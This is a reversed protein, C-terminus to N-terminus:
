VQNLQKKKKFGALAALGTGLLILSAPEPTSPPPPGGGISCDAGCSLRGVVDAFDLFLTGNNTDPSASDGRSGGTAIITVAKTVPDLLDVEGNNNNVIIDGNLNNTSSIVGTGDPSPFHAPAPTFVLTGTAIDYGNINTQESYVTKGDPSVSVGDGDGGANIVRFSGAGGNALPNIDILGAGSSAEIHGTVPNGWMGLDTTATVGTLIHNISGDANFQVFHGHGDGGYAQGGATAYAVVFSSSPTSFLASGVTQGDTDTFVYRTGAGTNVIINGTSAVAVGFPGACCGTNGPNTTAFTTLTFGDAMGAATLTPLQATVAPALCGVVFLGFLVAFITNKRSNM